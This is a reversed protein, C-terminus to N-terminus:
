NETEDSFEINGKKIKLNINETTLIHITEAQKDITNLLLKSDLSKETESLMNTLLVTGLATIIGFIFSILTTKWKSKQEKILLNQLEFTQSKIPNSLLESTAKVSAM